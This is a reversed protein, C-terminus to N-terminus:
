SKPKEEISARAIILKETPTGEYTGAAGLRNVTDQGEVVEGFLTHAGDLWPTPKLTIFFQSGETNPGKNAMGVLYPRDFKVDAVFEGAYTYGPGRTGTGLPCGGQALYDTVVRHFTTNNYFSRQTLFITSTVHMPAVDPMLKIKITGKNTELIWFYDTGADFTMMEPQTLELKWANQPGLQAIAATEEKAWQSQVQAVLQRQLTMMVANQEQPSFACPQGALAERLGRMLLALDIEIGQAKLSTGIQTGILYSIKDTDTKFDNANEAAWVTGSLVVALASGLLAWRIQKRIFM